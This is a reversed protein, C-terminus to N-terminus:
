PVQIGIRVDGFFGNLVPLTKCDHLRHLWYTRNVNEKLPYSQEQTVRHGPSRGKRAGATM